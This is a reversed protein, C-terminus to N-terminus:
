LLQAIRYRPKMRQFYFSLRNGDIKCEFNSPMVGPYEPDLGVEVSYFSAVLGRADIAELGSKSSLKTLLISRVSNGYIQQKLFLRVKTELDVEFQQPNKSM